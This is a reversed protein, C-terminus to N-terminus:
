PEPRTSSRRPIRNSPRGQTSSLVEAKPETPPGAVVLEVGSPEERAGGLLAPLAYLSSVVDQRLAGPRFRVARALAENSAIASKLINLGANHQRDMEWDCMECVFDQGVRGRRRAGCMPCTKSTWAPNVKIIPVGALAAKYQIQRHLEGRPWSSLERNRRRCSSRTETLTLAELIIAAQTAKATEVVRKSAAHLRHRVRNLERRTERAILAKGARRDHSKKSALKRKRRFHTAQVQSVGGLTASVLVGRHGSVLVGDLSDKNTDLALGGRPVYPSPAVRSVVLVVKQETLTLSGLRWSADELISRHWRSVPLRLEVGERGRIPLRLLGTSRDFSYSQNEAKLFLRHVWPTTTKRGKRLRRRHVKLVSLAVEFASPIYQKYVQHGRTLDAYAIQTLRKRSRIDHRVAIRISENVLLRFEALVWRLRPDPIAVTFPLSRYARM